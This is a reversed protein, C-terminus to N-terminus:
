GEAKRRLRLVTIEPAAGLRVPPGTTGLGPHVYLTADGIRYIGAHYRYTLRSLNVRTPMFPLAVQGWHTHGSLVLAAGRRALEPFLQPDHALTVLPLAEDRGALARSVDARRTWTDDVGAITLRDDGRAITMNANRLVEVGGSRMLSILPEGDGFYDHNGMVAIVGDGGKLATVVSAIDGHFATGSTVYDGTLAVLDAGLANVSRVWRAARPAPWLGGIHLDSLQAIRYGEFAAGLGAIPVDITRVRVWRRRVAVGYFSLALATVYAGLAVAGITDSLPPSPSIAHRAAAFIAGLVFVPASALTACWHMYYPEEILLLRWAPMPEDRMVRRVRGHLAAALGAAIVIAILAPTSTGLRALAFSLGVAFPVHTLATIVFLLIWFRRM